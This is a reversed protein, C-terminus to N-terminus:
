SAVPSPMARSRGGQRREGSRHLEAFLTTVTLVALGVVIHWTRVYIGTGPCGWMVLPLFWIPALRPRSIALPILLLEFYNNWVIPSLLLVAALTIPFSRRAYAIALVVLGVGDAVLKATALGALGSRSLLGIINYSQPSFDNGLSNMLHAYAGLTTFPLVLLVSAVAVAVALGTERFRRTAVLWVLMPWPFLKLAIAFGIALGPVYARDRYRWAIAILLGLLITLTGTQLAALATPWIVVLGYVRWDRVGLVWLTASLAGLLVVVFIVSAGEVSLLTLPTALLAATVTFIRSAGGSLDADPSPFPNTWDGILKAEPYLERRFDVGLSKGRFVDVAGFILVALPVMGLFVIPGVRKFALWM